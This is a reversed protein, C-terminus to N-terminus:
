CSTNAPISGFLMSDNDRRQQAIREGGGPPSLVTPIENIWEHADSALHRPM